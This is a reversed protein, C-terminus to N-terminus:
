VEVAQLEGALRFAFEITPKGHTEWCTICIWSDADHMKTGIMYSYKLKAGTCSVRCIDCTGVFPRKGEEKVRPAWCQWCFWQDIILTGAGTNKGCGTCVLSCHEGVEETSIKETGRPTKQSTKQVSEEVTGGDAVDGVASELSGRFSAGDADSGGTRDSSSAGAAILPLNPNRRDTTQFGSSPGMQRGGMNPYHQVTREWAKNSVLINQDEGQDDKNKIMMWSGFVEIDDEGPGFAVVKEDVIDLFGLGLHHAAWALGRSDSWPGSPIRLFGGLSITQLKNKWDAWFGNHFLVYGPTQGEFHTTAHDDIQFPHCALYSLSTGTSPVRFHLVYPLPLAQNLKIMEEKTHGKSWKVIKQEPNEPDPERWAVGGGHKNQEWMLDVQEDTLRAYECIAIVCM